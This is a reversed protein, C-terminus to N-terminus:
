APGETFRPTWVAALGHVAVWVLAVVGVGGALTLADVWHLSRSGEVLWGRSTAFILGAAVAVVANRLVLWPAITQSRGAPGM